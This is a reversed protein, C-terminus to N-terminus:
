DKTPDIVKVHAVKGVVHRNADEHIYTIDYTGLKTTDVNGIIRLDKVSLDTGYATSGSVYNDEPKWNSNQNIVLNKVNITAKQAIVTVKAVQGIIQGRNDIYSYTVSYIGDSNTDVNGIVNLDSLSLENGESDKASIFNSAKNWSTSPGATLSTDRVKIEAKSAVVVVNAVQGIIQGQNDTYSYTVSYIGERTPNVNCNVDMDNLTLKNGESDTASVFNDAKNWTTSPSAILKTDETIIKAKNADVVVNADQTILNGKSDRYSYTIPYSRGAMSTNASGTVTLKDLSLQNGESDTASVFNDAPKWNSNKDVTSDKVVITAASEIVKVKAEEIFIHGQSNTYSFIVNYTGIKKTNINNSITFNNLSLVNGEVDTGSVFNDLPSWVSGQVLSSNKLKINAKSKIVKVQADQSIINGQSDTYIFIVSYTGVKSTNINNTVTFSSSSLPNDKADTGSVFNDAANWNSGQAIIIDKVYISTRPIDVMIVADQIINNGQIDNYSYTVVYNGPKKIEVQGKYTIDSFRLANGYADTASVFNDAANWRTDPGAILRTPRTSINAKSVIIEIKAMKNIFNNKNDSYSYTVVYTGIKTLDVVGSVKLESLKLANGNADTASIFNDSKDWKTKPGAILEIDKTVINIKPSSVTVKSVQGILKGRSDTYSYTVFYSGVKATDVAGSVKLDSLKLQKGNDNTASIFNDAPDWRNGVGLEIITDKTNIATKSANTNIKSDENM